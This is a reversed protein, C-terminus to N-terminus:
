QAATQCAHFVTWFYCANRLGRVLRTMVRKEELRERETLRPWGASWDSVNGGSDLSTERGRRSLPFM